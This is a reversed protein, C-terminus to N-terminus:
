DKICRVSYGVVRYGGIIEAEGGVALYLYKAEIGNVTSSWYSGEEGASWFSGELKDRFGALPLKLAEFAAAASPLAWTNMEEVWEAETPIRFGEPCPNNVGNLGQWLDDNQPSRWDYPSATSVIFLGHGPEDTSSLETTTESNVEQHGDNGRGWQYIYGFSTTINPNTAVETAGLNKDMWIKGTTPNTITGIAPASGGVWTPVGGIMQLTASDKSTAPLTKWNAGDWYMMDGKQSGNPVSPDTETIGGTITEATKAYLAYPVSLIQSAGAITYDTGGELDIQSKIFYPGAAWNIGSLSGEEVEGEGIKISVLGNNNTTPKHTESYLIDEGTAQKCINIQMSIKQNKVLENDANRVVAQYSIKQPVQAFLSSAFLIVAFFVFFKKM